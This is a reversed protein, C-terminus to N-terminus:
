STSLNFAHGTVGELIVTILKDDHDDNRMCLFVSLSLKLTSLFFSRRMDSQHIFVFKRECLSQSLLLKFDRKDSWCGGWTNGNNM